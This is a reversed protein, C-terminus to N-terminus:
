IPANKFNQEWFKWILTFLALTNDDAYNYLPFVANVAYILANIFIIFLM